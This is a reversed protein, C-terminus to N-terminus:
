VLFKPQSLCPSSSHPLIRSSPKTNLMWNELAAPPARVKCLQHTWAAPTVNMYDPIHSIHTVNADCCILAYSYSSSLVGCWLITLHHFVRGQLKDGEQQLKWLSYVLLSTIIHPSQNIVDTITKRFCWQKYIQQLSSAARAIGLLPKVLLMWTYSCINYIYIIYSTICIYLAIYCYSNHWQGTNPLKLAAPNLVVAVPCGGLPKIGSPVVTNRLAAALLIGLVASPVQILQLFEVCPHPHPAQHSLWAMKM